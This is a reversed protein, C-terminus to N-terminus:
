RPSIIWLLHFRASALCQRAVLFAKIVVAAIQAFLSFDIAPTRSMPRSTGQSQSRAASLNPVPNLRMTMARNPKHNLTLTEHSWRPRHTMKKTAPMKCLSIKTKRARLRQITGESLRHLHRQCRGPSLDDRLSSGHPLPLPVRVCIPITTMTATTRHACTRASTM